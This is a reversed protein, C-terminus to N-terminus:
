DEPAYSKCLMKRSEIEIRQETLAEAYMERNKENPYLDYMLKANTVSEKVLDAQDNGSKLLEILATSNAVSQQYIEMKDPGNSNKNKLKETVENRQM